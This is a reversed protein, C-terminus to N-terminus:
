AEPGLDAAFDIGHAPCFTEADAADGSHSPQVVSWGLSAAHDLIVRLREDRTSGEAVLFDGEYREGCGFDDCAIGLSWPTGQQARTETM